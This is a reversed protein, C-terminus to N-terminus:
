RVAESNRAAIPSLKNLELWLGRIEDAAPKAGSIETVGKGANTSTVFQRRHCVYRQCLTLGCKAAVAKAEEFTAQEAKGTPVCNVVVITKSKLDANDILSATDELAALDFLSAQTPVIILDASRMAVLANGDSHPATDILILSQGLDAAGKLVRTLKEPLCRLAGPHRDVGRRQHWAEASGQPDIDVILVREGCETAHVALQTSLTSKGSGGKQSVFAWTRM